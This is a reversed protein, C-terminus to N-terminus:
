RRYSSSEYLAATSHRTILVDALPDLTNEGILYLQAVTPPQLVFNLQLELLPVQVSTTDVYPPRFMNYQDGLSSPKLEKETFSVTYM